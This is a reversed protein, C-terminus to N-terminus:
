TMKRTRRDRWSPTALAAEAKEDEIWACNCGQCRVRAGGPFVVDTVLASQLGPTKACTQCPTGRPLLPYARDFPPVRLTKLWELVFAESWRVNLEHTQSTLGRELAWYYIRLLRVHQSMGRRTFAKGLAAVLGLLDTREM